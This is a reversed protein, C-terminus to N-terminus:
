IIIRYVQELSEGGTRDLRYIANPDTEFIYQKENIDKISKGVFPKLYAPNNSQMFKRVASMYRGVKSAYRFTGITVTHSINNSYLLMRRPLTNKVIWRRDKRRIAGREKGQNRLREPSVRIEAAAETLTKGSRLVQLGIQFAEDDIPRPKRINKENAKPHGRAQSKSLGKKLGREIRRQYEAKYDRKRKKNTM